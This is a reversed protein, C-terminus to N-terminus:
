REREITLLQDADLRGLNQTTGDPWVIRVRARKADGLGFHAEVPNQSVYNNGCSLERMQTMGNATVYIRAGVAASNAGTDRLRIGLFGATNGGDNRHLRYTGNHNAVFADVDGDRDYDFCSVGRGSEADVLGHRAASERFRGNGQNMFLKSPDDYGYWGNTHFIDLWGDNDFDAFCAGWGWGGHAVRARTTVEDFVGDGRNRYLRNGDEDPDLGESSTVFWDLDGDNDYDGVAAGMGYSDTIVERDTIERFSQGGENLFVRSTRLDAAILLDPWGDSNIDAFNPTFSFDEEYGALDWEPNHFFRGAGTNRWLHDGGCGDRCERDWHALALDLDGDRDIDGLASSYTNKTSRVQSQSTTDRFGGKGNGNLLRPQTSRLGGFFLDLLGDGTFDGLTPAVLRTSLGDLASERPRFTGDGQNLLLLPAGADARILIVDVFGDGNVDGAAMGGSVWAAMGAVAFPEDFRHEVGLGAAVTVDTFVLDEAATNPLTSTSADTTSGAALVAVALTTAIVLPAVPRSM